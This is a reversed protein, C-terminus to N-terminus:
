DIPGFSVYMQGDYFGYVTITKAKSKPPTTMQSFAVKRPVTCGITVAFITSLNGNNDCKWLQVQGCLSGVVFRVDKLTPKDGEISLIEKGDGIRETAFEEYDGESDQRWFCLYGLTTGFCVILRPDNRIALWQVVTVQGLVKPRKPPTKVERRCNIQWIRLGDCGKINDTYATSM